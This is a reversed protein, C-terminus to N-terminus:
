FGSRHVIITQNDAYFGIYHSTSGFQHSAYKKKQVPISLNNEAEDFSSSKTYLGAIKLNQEEVHNYLEQYSSETLRIVSATNADTRHLGTYDFATALLEADAPFEVGTIEQFHEKYTEASPPFQQYILIALMFQGPLIVGINLWKNRTGPKFLIVALCITSLFLLFLLTPYVWATGLFSLIINM